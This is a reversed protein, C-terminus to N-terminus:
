VHLLELLKGGGTVTTFRYIIDCPEWSDGSTMAVETPGESGLNLSQSLEPVIFLHVHASVLADNERILLGLYM